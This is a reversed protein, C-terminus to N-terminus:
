KSTHEGSDGDEESPSRHSWLVRFQSGKRGQKVTWERQTSGPDGAKCGGGTAPDPGAGGGTGVIRLITVEWRTPTRTLGPRLGTAQTTIRPGM